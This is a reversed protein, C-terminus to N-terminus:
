GDWGEIRVATAVGAAGRAATQIGGQGTLDDVVLRDGDETVLREGDEAVPVVPVHAAPIVRVSTAM